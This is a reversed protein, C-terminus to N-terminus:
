SRPSVLSGLETPRYADESLPKAALITLTIPVSIRHLFADLLLSPDICSTDDPSPAAPSLSGAATASLTHDGYLNPSFAPPLPASPLGGLTPDLSIAGIATGDITIVFGTPVKGSATKLVLATRTINLKRGRAFPPMNYETVTINLPSNVPSRLLRTYTSSFDQRLSWARKAVNNTFYNVISAAVAANDSEVQDRL